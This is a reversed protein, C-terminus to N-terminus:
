APGVPPPRLPWGGRLGAPVGILLGVACLRGAEGLVLSLIDRPAAGLAVRVGMERSRQGVSLSMVGYLGLAALLTALVGFASSLQALLREPFLAEEVQRPMTKM